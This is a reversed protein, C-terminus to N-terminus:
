IFAGRLGVTYENEWTIVEKLEELTVTPEISEGAANSGLVLGYGALPQPYGYHEFFQINERFLGEDDIYFTDGHKNFTAATFSRVKLDAHILTCIQKFNGSYDVETIEKLYPDILFAKM